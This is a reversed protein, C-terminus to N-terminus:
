DDAGPNRGYALSTYRPVWRRDDPRWDGAGTFAPGFRPAPLWPSRHRWHSVTSWRTCELEASSPLWGWSLKSCRSIIGSARGPGLASRCTNGDTAVRRTRRASGTRILCWRSKGCRRIENCPLADSSCCPAPRSGTAQPRSTAPLWGRRRPRLCLRLAEYLVQVTDPLAAVDDPTLKRDPLMAVEAAVRDQIAAHRGLQWLASWAAVVSEAAETVHGGFAAIKQETFIPPLTRRRPLWAENPLDFLNAGLVRRFESLLRSTKDVSGDKNTLIDHIAEPSTAVVPPMLWKPEFTVRTIPGGAECLQDIGTHFSRVARARQRYPLPNKPALPLLAIRKKQVM